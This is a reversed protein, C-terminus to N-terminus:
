VLCIMCCLGLMVSVRCMKGATDETGEAGRVLTSLFHNATNSTECLELNPFSSFSCAIATAWFHTSPFAITNSMIFASSVLQM